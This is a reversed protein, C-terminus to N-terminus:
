FCFIQSIKKQWVQAIFLQMQASINRAFNHPSNPSSPASPLSRLPSPLSFPSSPPPMPHPLFARDPLSDAPPILDSILHDFGNQSALTRRSAFILVVSLNSGPPSHQNLLFSHAFRFTLENEAPWILGGVGNAGNRVTGRASGAPDEAGGQETGLLM